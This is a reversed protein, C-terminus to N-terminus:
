RGSTPDDRVQLAAVVMNELAPIVEAYGRTKLGCDPNVWLRNAPLVGLSARIADAMEDVSPVRPSHIDYVGPGIAREYDFDRFVVLLEEDSRANEILLVDADMRAIHDIIDNFESYCMHTHIQTQPAVSSTTLRFAAVAWRLYDDWESRRLPLGERLAPEDVQIIPAGAAELDLVEDGVALALQFCSDPRPQDDRVFSWQLMTVPGTLMGKVPRDTHSSAVRWWRVTIPDPRSVDGFLIPPKVYRSGYSQVWGNRTFVYGDFREAFYEVMDNREFEGHVLVDLGADEQIEICRRTEADMFDEYAQRDLDGRRYALRNKRVDVHQPFSGITTTPFPPLGLQNQQAAMRDTFSADRGASLPSQAKLRERVSANRTRPSNARTALRDANTRLEESISDRGQVLGRKLASLEDLKQVAFSLWSCLEDDLETEVAADIPVHLLSCSPSVILRDSGVSRTLEELLDLSASLDNLWVNRGDVVGASLWKDDPFGHQQMLPLNEEGRVLDLGLGDVPLGALTPYSNGVHGFYTQVLLKGPGRAEALKGYAATLAELERDNRDEVFCPEDLQVWDAGLAFLRDLVDLYVSTVAELHEALPDFGEERSKGLLLYSVPGLLVPRTAIGLALAEEFEDFPKASAVRFKQGSWFEPVIYHYNTDFWKTMEMAPADLTEIQIGRAMAFYVNLDVSDGTWQYREPVAGLLATTDLVQDYLSFDNSPVLDIGRESQLKWNAARLESAVSLLNEADEEGSWYRETARKLERNPGIRPFGLNATLSM